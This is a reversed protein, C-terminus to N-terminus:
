HVARNRLRLANRAGAREQQKLLGRVSIWDHLGRSPSELRLAVIRVLLWKRGFGIYRRDTAMELHDLDPVREEEGVEKGVENRAQRGTTTRESTRERAGQEAHVTEKQRRKRLQPGAGCVHVDESTTWTAIM